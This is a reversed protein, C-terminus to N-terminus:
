KLSEKRLNKAIKGIRYYTDNQYHYVFDGEHITGWASDMMFLIPGLCFVYFTSLNITIM